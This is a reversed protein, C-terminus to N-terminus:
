EDIIFELCEPSVVFYRKTCTGSDEVYAPLGNSEMMWRQINIEVRKGPEIDPREKAVQQSVSEVWRKDVDMRLADSAGPLAIISKPYSFGLMIRNNVPKLKKPDGLKKSREFIKQHEASMLEMAEKEMAPKKEIRKKGIEVGM